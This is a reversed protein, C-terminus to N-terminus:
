HGAQCAPRKVGCKVCFKVTPQWSYDSCVCKPNCGCDACRNWSSHMLTGCHCSSFYNGACAECHGRVLDNSEYPDRCIICTYVKQEAAAAAVPQKNRASLLRDLEQVCETMWQRFETQKAVDGDRVAANLLVGYGLYRDKATYGMEERLSPLMQFLKRRWEETWIRREAESVLPLYVGDPAVPAAAAVAPEAHQACVGNPASRCAGCGAAAPRDKEDVAMPAAAPAAEILHAYKVRLQDVCKAMEESYFAFDEEEGADLQWRAAHVLCYRDVIDDGGGYKIQGRGLPDIRQIECLNWLAKTDWGPQKRRKRIEELDIVFAQKEVAMPAAAAPAAKKANNYADAAEKAATFDLMTHQGFPPMRPYDPSKKCFCGHKIYNYDHVVAFCHKCTPMAHRKSPHIRFGDTIDGAYKTCWDDVCRAHMEDVVNMRGDIKETCIACANKEEEEKKQKKEGGKEKEAIPKRKEGKKQKRDSMETL